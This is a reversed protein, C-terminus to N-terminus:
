LRFYPFDSVDGVGDFYWRLDSELVVLRGVFIDKNSNDGWERLVDVWYDAGLGILLNGRGGGKCIQRSDCIVSRAYVAVVVGCVRIGAIDFRKARPWFHFVSNDDVRSILGDAFDLRESTWNINALFDARFNAGAVGSNQALLWRRATCDHIYTRISKVQVFAKDANSSNTQFVQGWGTLASYGEIDLSVGVRGSKYWDYSSPVGNPLAEHAYNGARIREIDANLQRNDDVSCGVILLPMLIVAVFFIM